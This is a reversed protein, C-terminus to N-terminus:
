IYYCDVVTELWESWRIKCKIDFPCSPTLILESIYIKAKNYIQTTYKTFAFWKIKDFAVYNM